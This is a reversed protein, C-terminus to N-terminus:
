VVILINPQSLIEYYRKVCGPCCISLDFEHAEKFSICPPVYMWKYIKKNNGCLIGGDRKIHINQTDIDNESRKQKKEKHNRIRYVFEQLQYEIQNIM